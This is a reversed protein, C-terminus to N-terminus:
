QWNGDLNKLLRVLEVCAVHYDEESWAVRGGARMSRDGVDTAIRQAIEETLPMKLLPSGSWALSM